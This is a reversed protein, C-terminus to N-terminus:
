ELVEKNIQTQCSSQQGEEKNFKNKICIIRIEAKGKVERHIFNWEWKYYEKSTTVRLYIDMKEIAGDIAPQDEWEGQKLIQM